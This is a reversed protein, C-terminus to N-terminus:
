EDHRDNGYLKGRGRDLRRAPPQGYAPRQFARRAAPLLFMSGTAGILGVALLLWDQLRFIRILPIAHERYLPLYIAFRIVKLVALTYGEVISFVLFRRYLMGIEAWVGYMHSVFIVFALEILANVYMSMLGLLAGLKSHIRIYDAALNLQILFILVSLAVTVMTLLARIVSRAPRRHLSGRPALAPVNPTPNDGASRTPQM